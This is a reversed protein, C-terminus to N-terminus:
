VLFWSKEIPVPHIDSDGVRISINDLKGLQQSTGIILFETKDDNLKLDNNLMWLRINAADITVPLRSQNAIVSKIDAIKQAFFKGFDNALQYDNTSLPLGPGNSLNLLSKSARFLRRQDTSNETIFNTYYACRAENSLFTVRNRMARYSLLDIHAKSARWKREAKRRQRKALIIEDNMWPVRSRITVNKKSLLLTGIWCPVCHTTSYPPWSTLIKLIRKFFSATVSKM